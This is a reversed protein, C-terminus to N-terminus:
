TRIQIHGHECLECECPVSEVVALPPFLFLDTSSSNCVRLDVINTCLSYNKHDVSATLQKEQKVKCVHMDVYMRNKTQIKELIKDEWLSM